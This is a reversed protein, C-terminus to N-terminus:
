VGSNINYNLHNSAAGIDNLNQLFNIFLESGMSVLAKEEPTLKVKQKVIYAHVINEVHNKIDDNNLSSM